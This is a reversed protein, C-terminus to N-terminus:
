VENAGAKSDGSSAQLGRGRVGLEKRVFGGSCLLAVPRWAPLGQQGEQLGM